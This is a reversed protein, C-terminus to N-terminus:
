LTLNSLKPLFVGIMKRGGGGALRLVAFTLAFSLCGAGYSDYTFLFITSLLPHGSGLRAKGVGPSSVLGVFNLFAVYMCLLSAQLIVHM